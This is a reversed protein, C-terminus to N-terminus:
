ARQATSRASYVPSKLPSNTNIIILTPTIPHVLLEIKEGRELLREVNQVMVQVRTMNHDDDYVQCELAAAADVVVAAVDAAAAAVVDAAAAAVAAMCSAQKVDDIESQVKRVKDASPGAKM